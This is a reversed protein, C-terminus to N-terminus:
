EEALRKRSSWEMATLTTRLREACIVGATMHDVAPNPYDVGVICNSQEQIKQPAMWPCYIFETPYKSLEPVYTRIYKGEPDIRQGYSIPHYHEVPGTIFASCSSRMWCACSVSPEFDLMFAEFTDKGHEWSLWLDGRTLFAAISERCPSLSLSLCVRVNFEADQLVTYDIM